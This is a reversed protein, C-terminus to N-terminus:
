ECLYALLVLRVLFSYNEYRHMIHMVNRKSKIMKVLWWAEHFM